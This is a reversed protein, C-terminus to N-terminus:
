TVRYTLALLRGDLLTSDLLDLTLDPLGAYAPEAGTAGLIQPFVVLRLRDVLGDRLLSRVLSVSGITRLPDGPAAKLARPDPVATANWELPGTLTRSVVAKPVADMSADGTERSMDRLMEYTRRGMVMLQPKDLEAAIWARLDPGDFGFFAASASGAAWGDLTTFLDVTLERV